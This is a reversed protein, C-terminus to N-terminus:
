LMEPVDILLYEIIELARTVCTFIVSGAGDSSKHHVSNVGVRTLNKKVRSAASAAEKCTSDAMHPLMINLLYLILLAQLLAQACNLLLLKRMHEAYGIHQQMANLIRAKNAM